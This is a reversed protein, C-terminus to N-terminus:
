VSAMATAVTDTVEATIVAATGVMVVVMDAAAAFRQAAVGEEASDEVVGEEAVQSDKGAM